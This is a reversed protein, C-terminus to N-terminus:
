SAKRQKEYEIYWNYFLKIGETINTKPIFGLDNTTQTIDAYTEEMDGIDMPSTNIIAKKNLVQEIISVLETVEIPKTNGINYIAHKVPPKSLCINICSVIDDIYTFDRRMKGSNFLTISQNTLINQTFKYIAMDPRGWPGYVTFFRLGTAPINYLHSYSYSLSEDAQKTAAYLSRPSNTIDLVSFPTKNNNGYVSSSSAYVLHKLNPLNRCMELIVVQGVLNSSVYAFPNEVGYRVGAQAALHLVHTTDAHNKAIKTIEHQDSIDAKYFTFNPFKKLLNLRAQKLSIDYYNNINDIGIVTHNNKLLSISTSFGIFGAAGTVIIIM